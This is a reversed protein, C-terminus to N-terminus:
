LLRLSTGHRRLPSITPFVSAEILPFIDDAEMSLDSALILADIMKFRFPLVPIAYPIKLM